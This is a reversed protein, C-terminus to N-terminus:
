AQNIRVAVPACPISFGFTAGPGENPMAEMARPELGVGADQVLLKVNDSGHMETRVRLTRPRDEISSTADAANLLNLVVQQLQPLSDFVRRLRGDIEASEDAYMGHWCWKDRGSVEGMVSPRLVFWRYEGDWRRVRADIEKGGGSQMVANWSELSSTLDDPHIAQQWGLDFAVDPGLGTYEGWYRNVFDCRGDSQTTWVLAPLARVIKELDIQHATEIM